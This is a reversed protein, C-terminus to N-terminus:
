PVLGSSSLMSRLFDVVGDVVPEVKSFLLEILFVMWSDELAWGFFSLDLVFIELVTESAAFGAAVAGGGAAADMEAAEVVTEHGTQEISFSLPAAVHMM